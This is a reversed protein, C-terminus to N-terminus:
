KGRVKRDLISFFDFFVLRSTAPDRRFLLNVIVVLWWLRRGATHATCAPANSILESSGIPRGEDSAEVM